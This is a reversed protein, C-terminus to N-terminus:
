PPESDHTRMRLPTPSANVPTRAPRTNLRSICVGHRFSRTTRPASATSILRLDCQHQRMPSDAGSGARDCVGHMCSFVKSPFRSTGSDEAVNLASRMPFGVPTRRHAMASPLRVAAYYRLLQRVFGPRCHGPLPPPPPFAAPWPFDTQRCRTGSVSGPERSLRGRVSVVPRVKSAQDDHGLAPATHPLEARVSRHLPHQTVPMGVGVKHMTAHDAPAAGSMVAHAATSCNSGASNGRIHCPAAGADLTADACWRTIATDQWRSGGHGLVTVM